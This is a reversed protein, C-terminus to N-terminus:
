NKQLIIIQEPFAKKQLNFLERNCRKLRNKQEEYAAKLHACGPNAQLAHLADKTQPFINEHREQQLAFYRAKWDPINEQEPAFLDNKYQLLIITCLLAFYLSKMYLEKTKLVIEDYM